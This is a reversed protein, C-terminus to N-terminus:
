TGFRIIIIVMIIARNQSTLDIKLHFRDSFIQMGEDQMRGDRIFRSALHCIFIHGEAVSLDRGYLIM